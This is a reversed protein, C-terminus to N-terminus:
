HIEIILDVGSFLGNSKKNFEIKGKFSVEKQIAKKVINSIGKTLYGLKYGKYFVAISSSDWFRSFDEVFHIEAGSFIKNKIYIFDYSSLEAISTNIGLKPLMNPKQFDFKLNRM